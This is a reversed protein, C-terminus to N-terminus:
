GNSSRPEALRALEGAITGAAQPQRLGRMSERMAQLKAPNSLLDTILPLLDQMLLQDEVILAARHRALVGANVRQYRWAFPYPVLIAPLGFLPYEGLVSAGARSIVLDASALAAGMEHLYPMPHYREALKAPLRDALPEIEPWALAGCLHVVQAMELLAPLSETVARNISRAGRSGGTVLVAPLDPSLGLVHRGDERTWGELESRVPYGTVALKSTDRYYSRSDAATVAIRDAFPAASKIALGPEIDPVYLLTPISRGAVAMPFALYGGTLLMAQPRFEKLIRGAALLGRSLKALNGPLARWGVGHLGAAPISQFPIGARKVLEAEMGDDGGVWLTEVGPHSAALANHVALAPYM